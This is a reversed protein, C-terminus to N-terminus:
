ESDRKKLVVRYNEGDPDARTSSVIVKEKGIYRYLYSRLSSVGNEDLTLMVAKDNGLVEERTIDLLPEYASTRGKGHKRRLEKLEGEAEDPSVINLDFDSM